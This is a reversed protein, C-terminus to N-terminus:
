SNSHIFIRRTVVCWLLEIFLPREHADMATLSNVVNTLQCFNALFVVISCLENFLQRERADIATLSNLQEDNFTQRKQLFLTLFTCSECDPNLEYAFRVTQASALFSAKLLNKVKFNPLNDLFHM